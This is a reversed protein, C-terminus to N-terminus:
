IECGPRRIAWRSISSGGLINERSSAKSVPMLKSAGQMVMCCSLSQVDTTWTPTVHGGKDTWAKHSHTPTTM